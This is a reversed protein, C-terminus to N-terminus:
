KLATHQRVEILERYVSLYNNVMRESTLENARRCAKKSYMCLLEENNILQNVVQIMEYENDPNVYVASDGWIEKFSDLNSLVLACGMSAAELASLGFPEYLSPMIFIKAMKMINRLRDRTLKGLQNFNEYDEDAILGDGAAFVPWKIKIAINAITKINKGSDWMRGATLVFPEKKVQVDNENTIGNYIVKINSNISYHKSIERSMFHSPTIISDACVLGDSVRTKYNKMSEPIERKEVHEFWSCVCSHATIIVPAHWPIAGHSYGNLHIIDPHTLIEIDLLWEAANEVDRWPDDMWELKYTSEFLEVNDLHAIMKKQQLDPQPGMTALVMQIDRKRLEKAFEVAYTWVGGVADATMMIRSPVKTSTEFMKIRWQAM